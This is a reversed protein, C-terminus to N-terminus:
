SEYNLPIDYQIREQETLDRAEDCNMCRMQTFYKPFTTTPQWDHNGDNLCDAKRAEYYFSISTTYAFTKGCNNCEQQYTVSEEYGQGDDHNIEQWEECYPCEVDQIM